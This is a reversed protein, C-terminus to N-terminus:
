GDDNSSQEEISIQDEGFGDIDMPVNFATGSSTTSATTATSFSRTKKEVPLSLPSASTRTAESMKNSRLEQEIDRKM